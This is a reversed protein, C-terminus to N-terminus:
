STEWDRDQQVDNSLADFKIQDIDDDVLLVATHCVGM